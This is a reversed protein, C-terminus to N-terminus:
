KIARSLARRISAVFLIQADKLLLDETGPIDASARFADEICKIALQEMGRRYARRAALRDPASARKSNPFRIVNATM